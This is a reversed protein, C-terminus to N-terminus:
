NKLSSTQSLLFLIRSERQFFRFGGEGWRGELNKERQYHDLAMSKKLDQLEPQTLFEPSLLYKEDKKQSSLFSAIQSQRWLM